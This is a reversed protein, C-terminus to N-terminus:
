QRQPLLDVQRVLFDKLQRADHDIYALRYEIARANVRERIEAAKAVVPEVSVSPVHVVRPTPKTAHWAGVAVAVAAAMSGIWGWPVGGRPLRHARAGRAARRGQRGGGARRMIREHLSADFAPSSGMAEAKMRERLGDTNM